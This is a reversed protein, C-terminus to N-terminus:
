PKPAEARESPKAPPIATEKGLGLKSRLVARVEPPLGQQPDLLRDRVERDIDELPPLGIAATREKPIKSMYTQWLQKAMLRYGAFREEGQEEDTALSMYANVLLGEIGARVRERSTEGVDGQFRGVAYQDLTLNRPFSNTDGDLIAKDPYKEGLYKYWAAADAVRNHEYLFYVADRLFNRHARLIHDHNKEDDQAAQEYAASVKPIIELNPGFDFAQIFINSVLRGRQFSLQMSQYVVRRLTILDDKNVKTPNEKDAELGKSAWYIAHSEPLRWELPGYQQDVQKMFKPDMKYKDRLIEARRKQDETQPNILEDLNPKKKAFVEGMENAWEQKYYMNADDLNQGLKHQFFWALERYILVENPNYHLGEDRLLELGRKVWRWRDPFDKFKVSINYAMNWAQVLWVQVFHPELKTIWDALQAMEFFKDEDQLDTARIWLVNSILGRFGGLAVTTFALVPPANELPTVRTLEFKDRDRNLSKQVFSTGVLLALALLLLLIKKLRSSM